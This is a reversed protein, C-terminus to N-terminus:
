PSAIERLADVTAQPGVDDGVHAGTLLVIPLDVGATRYTDIREALMDPGLACQALVAEDPVLSLAKARDGNHWAEAVEPLNEFTGVFAPQHTPVMSYALVQRRMRELAQEPDPGAYAWFSLVTAVDGPNRGSQTAGDDVIERKPAVETPPCWTMFVADAIEGAVALMRPNIAGLWVPVEAAPLDIRFGKSRFRPGDHNLKEGALASRFLGIFERVTALPQEFDGGHWRGVVIPSSAGIGAIIRGPALSALTAFGMATLAPSRTYAAVIGSGLKIRETRAAMAGLTAFVEPGAVEGVLATDIGAQEAHVVLDTLWGISLGDEVPMTIAVPSDTM